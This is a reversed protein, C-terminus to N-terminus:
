LIKLGFIVQLIQIVFYSSLIVLLGILAHTIEKTASQIKASDGLSTLYTYGASILRVLFFIGASLIAFLLLRAVVDALLTNYDQFKTSPSTIGTIQALQKM